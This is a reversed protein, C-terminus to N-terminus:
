LLACGGRKKKGGGGVDEEAGGKSELIMRVVEEFIDQINMRTKASTERFQAGYRSALERGDELSVARKDDLDAKNGALAISLNEGEKVRRITDIIEKINDFSSRSTISYVVVFGDSDRIWEDRQAKFEEQGATDLIEVLVAKGDILLQKRYSDEITPDYETVFRDSCLRITLATKGVGGEGLVCVQQHSM